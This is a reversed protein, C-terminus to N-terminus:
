SIQDNKFFLMNYFKSYFLWFIFAKLAISWVGGPLTNFSVAQNFNLKFQHGFQDQSRIKEKLYKLM